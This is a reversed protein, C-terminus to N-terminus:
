ERSIYDILRKVIYILNMFFLNEVTITILDYLILKGPFITRNKQLCGARASPSIAHASEWLYVDRALLRWRIEVWKILSIFLSGGYGAGRKVDLGPPVIFNFQGAQKKRAQALNICQTSITIEKSNFGGQSITTWLPIPQMTWSILQREVIELRCWVPVCSVTVEMRRRGIRGRIEAELEKYYIGMWFLLGVWVLFHAVSLLYM